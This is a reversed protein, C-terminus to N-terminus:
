GRRRIGGDITSGGGLPLSLLQGLEISGVEGKGDRLRVARMITLEDSVDTSSLAIMWSTEARREGVRLKLGSNKRERIRNRNIRTTDGVGVKEM